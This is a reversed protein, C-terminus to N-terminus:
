QMTWNGSLLLINCLTIATYSTTVVGTSHDIFAAVVGSTGANTDFWTLSVPTLGTLDTLNAPITGLTTNAPVLVSSGNTWVGSIFLQNNAKKKVLPASVGTGATWGGALSAYNAVIGANGTAQDVILSGNISYGSFYINSTPVSAGIDLMNSIFGVGSDISVVAAADDVQIGANGNGSIRKSGIAVLGNTAHKIWISNHTASGMSADCEVFLAGGGSADDVVLLDPTSAIGDLFCTPDIFIERNQLNVLSKDIIFAAVGNGLSTVNAFYIGGVGGGVCIGGNSCYIINGGILRFENAGSADANAFVRLGQGNIATVNLNYTQILHVGEFVLGHLIKSYFIANDAPTVDIDKVVSDSLNHFYVARSSGSMVTTSEVTFGGIYQQVAAHTNDGGFTILDITTSTGTYRFVTQGYFGSFSLGALHQCLLPSKFKYVFPGAQLCTGALMWANLATANDPLTHDAGFWEPYAPGVFQRVWAGLTTPYLPLTSAIYLGQQPDAAVQASFNGLTWEFVGQRGPGEALYAVGVINPDLASLSSRTAANMLRETFLQTLMEAQAPVFSVGILDEPIKPVASM